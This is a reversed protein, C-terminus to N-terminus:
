SINEFSDILVIDSDRQKQIKRWWTQIRSAAAKKTIKTRSDEGILIHNHHQTRIFLAALTVLWVFTLTRKMFVILLHLM